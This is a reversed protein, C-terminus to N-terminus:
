DKRKLAEDAARRVYARVAPIPHAPVSAARRLIADGDIAHQRIVQKTRKNNTM